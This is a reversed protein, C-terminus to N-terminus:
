LELGQFIQQSKMREVVNIHKSIGKGLTPSPRTETHVRKEQPPNNVPFCLDSLPWPFRLPQTQNRKVLFVYALSSNTGPHVLSTWFDLHLNGERLKVTQGQFAVKGIPFYNELWWKEPAINFKPPPTSFYVSLVFNM